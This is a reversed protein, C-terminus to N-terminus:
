DNAGGKRAASIPTRTVRVIQVPGDQGYVAAYHRADPLSTSMACFEGDDTVVEYSVDTDDPEGSTNTEGGAPLSLAANIRRVVGLPLDDEAQIRYTDGQDALVSLLVRLENRDALAVGEEGRGASLLALVIRRLKSAETEHGDEAMDAHWKVAEALLVGQGYEGPKSQQWQWEIGYERPETQGDGYAYSKADYLYEGVEALRLAEEVAGRTVEGGRLPQTADIVVALKQYISQVQQRREWPLLDVNQMLAWGAERAAAQLPTDQDHPGDFGMETRVFDRAAGEAEGEGSNGSLQPSSTLAALVRDIKDIDADRAAIMTPESREDAGLCEFWELIDSRAGRLAEVAGSAPPRTNWAAIAREDASPQDARGHFASPSRAGCDPCGVQRGDRVYVTHAREGGCFPCPKLAVGPTPQDTM